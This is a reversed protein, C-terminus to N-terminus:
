NVIFLVETKVYLTRSKPEINVLDEYVGGIDFKVSIRGTPGSSTCASLRLSSFVSLCSSALVCKERHHLHALVPLHLACPISFLVPPFSRRM